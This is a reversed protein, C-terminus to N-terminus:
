VFRVIWFRSFFCFCETEIALGFFFVKILVFFHQRDHKGFHKKEHNKKSTVFYFGHLAVL